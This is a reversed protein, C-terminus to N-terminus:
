ALSLKRRIERKAAADARHFALILQALGDDDCYLYAVPVDLATALKSAIAYSPAHVGVEYRNVRTSAVSPDIGAAIGLVRQSMGREERAAKLRRSWTRSNQEGDKVSRDEYHM